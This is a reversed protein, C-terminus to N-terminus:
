VDVEFDETLHIRNLAIRGSAAVFELTAGGETALTVVDDGSLSRCLGWRIGAAHLARVAPGLETRRSWVARAEEIGLGDARGCGSMKIVLNVLRDELFHLEVLDIHHVVLDGMTETRAGRGPFLAQLALRSQALPAGIGLAGEQGFKLLAYLNM